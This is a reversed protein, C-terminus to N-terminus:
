LKILFYFMQIYKDNIWEMAYVGGGQKNFPAGVLASSKVGCGANNSQGPQNVYCGKSQFTGTFTSTNMNYMSCENSTHLTSQTATQTNVYEIIDIEGNNPWDPGVTWFAPWLSCGQPLVKGMTTPMHDLDIIVLVNGDLTQSSVM